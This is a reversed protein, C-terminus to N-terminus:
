GIVLRWDGFKLDAGPVSEGNKLEAAIAKKDPKFELRQLHSEFEKREAPDIRQLLAEWVYSRMTLIVDKHALPIANADTIFVADPNKQIRLSSLNGELRKIGQRDPVAFREIVEVVYRELEQQVRVISEKRKKLRGIEAEAFELQQECHKLFAVVADRKDKAKKLAEGIEDLLLQRAPEEGVLDVTNAFAVLNDEIEYLTCQNQSTRILENAM